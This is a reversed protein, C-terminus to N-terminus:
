GRVFGTRKLITVLVAIACVILLPVVPDRYRPIIYAAAHVIWFSGILAALILGKSSRLARTAFAAVGFVFILGYQVVEVWRACAIVPNAAVDAADPLNPEWFYYLKKGALTLAETKHAMIWSKAESALLASTGAEGAEIRRANWDPGLPTDAISVFKGTAAPNNGLYLNFSSNTSLLPAGIVRDVHIIWPTVLAATGLAFALGARTATSWGSRRVLIILAVLMALPTLIVSGGVLLAAGFILGAALARWMPRASEVLSLLLSAFGLMLLISLNEKQLTEVGIVSPIWVAMALGALAMGLRAGTVQWAVRMVLAVSALSCLLNFGRAASPTDGFMAFVSALAFPYGPSYFAMQGFNDAVVGHTVLGDAMTFYALADSKVPEDLAWLAAFRLFLALACIALPLLKGKM